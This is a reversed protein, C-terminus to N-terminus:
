FFAVCNVLYFLASVRAVKWGFVIIVGMVIEGHAYFELVTGPIGSTEGFFGAINKSVLQNNEDLKGIVQLGHSIFYTALLIKFLLRFIFQTNLM